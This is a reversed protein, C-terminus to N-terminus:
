RCQDAGATGRHLAAPCGLPVPDAGRGGTRDLRAKLNVLSISASDSEGKLYSFVQDLAAETMHQMEDAPLLFRILQEWQKSSFDKLIPM